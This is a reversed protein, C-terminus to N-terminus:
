TCSTSYAVLMFMGALMVVIFTLAGAVLGMAIPSM